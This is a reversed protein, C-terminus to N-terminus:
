MRSRTSARRCLAVSDLPPTCSCCPHRTLFALLSLSASCCCFSPDCGLNHRHGGACFGFFWPFPAVAALTRSLACFLSLSASGCHFSPNVAVTFSERSCHLLVAEPRVQVTIHMEHHKRGTPILHLVTCRVGLSSVICVSSCHSLFANPRVQVTFHMEHHLTGLHDAVEKAAKLDPSGQHVTLCGVTVRLRVSVPHSPSCPRVRLNGERVSASVTWAREFM